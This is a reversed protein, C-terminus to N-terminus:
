PTAGDDEFHNAKVSDELQKEVNWYYDSCKYEKKPPNSMGTERVECTVTSSWLTKNSSLDRIEMSEPHKDDPFYLTYKEALCANLRPSYFTRVYAESEFQDHEADEKLKELMGACKLKKDFDDRRPRDKAPQSTCGMVALM